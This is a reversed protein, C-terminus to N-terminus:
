LHRTSSSHSTLTVSLWMHQVLAWCYSLHAVTQGCYVHASFQPPCVRVQVAWRRSRAPQCQLTHRGRGGDGALADTDGALWGRGGSVSSVDCVSTTKIITNTTVIRRSWSCSLCTDKWYKNSINTTWVHDLAATWVLPIRWPPLKLIEPFIPVVYQYVSTTPINNSYQEKLLNLQDLELWQRAPGCFTLARSHLALDWTACLSVIYM